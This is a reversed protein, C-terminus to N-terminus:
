FCIQGQLSGRQGDKRRGGVQKKFFITEINKMTASQKFCIGKKQSSIKLSHSFM